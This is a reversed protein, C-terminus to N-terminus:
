NRLVSKSVFKKPQPRNNGAAKELKESIDATQVCYKQDAVYATPDGAASLFQKWTQIHWLRM